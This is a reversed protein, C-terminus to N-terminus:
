LSLRYGNYLLIVSDCFHWIARNSNRWVKLGRYIHLESYVYVVYAIINNLIFSYRYKTKNIMIKYLIIINSIIAITKTYYNFLVTYIFILIPFNGVAAFLSNFIIGLKDYLDYLTYNKNNSRCYSGIFPKSISIQYSHRISSVLGLLINTICYIYPAGININIVGALVMFLSDIGQMFNMDTFKM